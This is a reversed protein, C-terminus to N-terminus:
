LGPIPGARSRYGEPPQFHGPGVLRSDARIEMVRGPATLWRIRMPVGAVSELSSLAAEEGALSPMARSFDALYRLAKRLTRLDAARDTFASEPAMWVEYAPRGGRLIIQGQCAVGAIEQTRGTPRVSVAAAPERVWGEVGARHEEPLLDLLNDVHGSLEKLSALSIVTCTRAAHDVLTAEERVTHLILTPKLPATEGPAEDVRVRGQSVTIRGREVVQKGSRTVANLTLDGSATACLAFLGSIASLIVPLRM